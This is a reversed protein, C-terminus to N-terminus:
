EVYGAVTMPKFAAALEPKKGENKLITIVDLVNAVGDGNADVAADSLLRKTGSIHELAKM